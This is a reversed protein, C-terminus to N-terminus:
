EMVFLIKLVAKPKIMRTQAKAKAKKMMWKPFSVSDNSLTPLDKRFIKTMTRPSNSNSSRQLLESLELELKDLINVMNRSIPRIMRPEIIMTLRMTAMMMESMSHSFLIDFSCARNFWTFHQTNLLNVDGKELSVMCNM